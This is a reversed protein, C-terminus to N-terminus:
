PCVFLCLFVSWVPGKYKITNLIQLNYKMNLKYKWLFYKCNIQSVKYNSYVKTQFFRFEEFYKMKQEVSLGFTYSHPNFLTFFSLITM